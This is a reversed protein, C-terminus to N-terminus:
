TCPPGGRVRHGEPLRVDAGPDSVVSWEPLSGGCALCSPPFWGDGRVSEWFDPGGDEWLAGCTPCTVAAWGCEALVDLDVARDPLWVRRYGVRAAWVLLLDGAVDDWPTGRVPVVILENEDLQELDAISATVHTYGAKLPGRPGMGPRWANLTVTGDRITARCTPHDHDFPHM